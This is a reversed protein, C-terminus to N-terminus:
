ENKSFDMVLKLKAVITFSHPTSVHKVLVFFEIAKKYM